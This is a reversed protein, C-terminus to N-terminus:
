DVVRYNQRWNNHHDIAADILVSHSKDKDIEFNITQFLPERKYLSVKTVVSDEYNELHQIQCDLFYTGNNKILCKIYGQSGQNNFNAHSPVLEDAKNKIWSELRESISEDKIGYVTIDNIGGDDNSGSYEIDIKGGKLQNWPLNQFDQHLKLETSEDEYDEAEAWFYTEIKGIVLKSKPKITLNISHQNISIVNPRMLDRNRQVNDEVIKVIKDFINNGKEDVFDQLHGNIMCRETIDIEQKNFFRWEAETPPSWHLDITGDDVYFYHKLTIKSVDDPFLEMFKTM